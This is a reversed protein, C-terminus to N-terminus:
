NPPPEERSDKERPCTGCTRTGRRQGSGANGPAKVNAFRRCLSLACASPSGSRCALPNLHPHDLFRKLFGAGKEPDKEREGPGPALLRWSFLDGDDVTDLDHGIRGHREVLVRAPHELDPLLQPYPVGAICEIEFAGTRGLDGRVARDEDLLDALQQPERGLPGEEAVQDLGSLAGALDLHGEPIEDFAVPDTQDVSRDVLDNVQRELAPIEVFPPEILLDLHQGPAPVDAELAEPGPHAPDQGVHGVVEDAGRPRVPRGPLRMREQALEIMILADMKGQSVGRQTASAPRSRTKM